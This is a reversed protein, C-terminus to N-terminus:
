VAVLAICILRKLLISQNSWVIGVLATGVAGTGTWVAYATGLPLVKFTFSMLSASLRASIDLRTSRAPREPILRITPM